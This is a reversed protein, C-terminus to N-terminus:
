PCNGYSGYYINGPWNWPTYPAICMGNYSIKGSENWLGNTARVWQNPQGSPVWWGNAEVEGANTPQAEDAMEAGDELEKAYTEFGGVCDIQYEGYEGVDFCWVGAGAAEM